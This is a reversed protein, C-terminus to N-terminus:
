LLWYRDSGHIHEAIVYQNDKGNLGVVMDYNYESLPDLAQGPDVCIWLRRDKQQSVGQKEVQREM